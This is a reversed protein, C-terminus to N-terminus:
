RLSVLVRVQDIDTQGSKLKLNLTRGDESLLIQDGISDLGRPKERQIHHNTAGVIEDSEWLRETTFIVGAVPHDFTMSAEVEGEPADSSPWLQLLYSRMEGDESSLTRGDTATDGQTFYGPSIEDVKLSDPPQFRDKELFVQIEGEDGQRNSSVGPLEIAIDGLNREVGALLEWAKSFARPNFPVDVLRERNHDAKVAEFEFVDRCQNGDNICVGAKGSFVIAETSEPERADLGVTIAGESFRINRTSLGVGFKEGPQLGTSEKRTALALGEHLVATGDQDVEFVAPGEIALTEGSVMEISVAGSQLKHTGASLGGERGPGSGAAWFADGTSKVLRALSASDPRITGFQVTLIFASFAIAAALGTALIVHRTRNPTPFPVIQDDTIDLEDLKRELDEVFHDERSEAWMRTHLSDLFAAESREKACAQSILDELHLAQRLDESVAPDEMAIRALQDSSTSSLEGLCFRNIREETTSEQQLLLDRLAQDHGDTTEEPDSLAQRIWESFTLESKLRRVLDERGPANLSQELHFWDEDTAEGSAIRSITSQLDM